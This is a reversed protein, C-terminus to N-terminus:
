IEKKKRFVVYIGVIWFILSFIVIEFQNSKIAIYDFVVLFGCWFVLFGVKFINKGLNDFKTIKNKFLLDILGAIVLGIGAIAFPIVIIRTMDDKTAAAIWICFFSMTTGILINRISNVNIQINKFFIGTIGKAAIGVGTLLFPIIVMQIFDYKMTVFVYIAMIAMITGFVIREINAILKEDETFYSEKYPDYRM